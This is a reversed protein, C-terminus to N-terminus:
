IKITSEAKGFISEQIFLAILSILFFFLASVLEWTIVVVGISFGERRSVKELYMIYKEFQFKRRFEKKHRLKGIFRASGSFVNQLKYIRDERWPKVTICTTKGPTNARLNAESARQDNQNTTLPVTAHGNNNTVQPDSLESDSDSESDSINIWAQVVAVLHRFFLPLIYVSNCYSTCYWNLKPSHLSCIDVRTGLPWPVLSSFHVKERM